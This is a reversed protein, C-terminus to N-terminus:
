RAKIGLVIPDLKHIHRVSIYAPASDYAGDNVLLLIDTRLNRQKDTPMWPITITLISKAENAPEITANGRLVSAYYSAISQGTDAWSYRLDEKLVLTQGERIAAFFAYATDECYAEGGHNAAADSKVEVSDVRMRCVPPIHKLEHAANILGDLFPSEGHANDAAEEPLTYAPVHAAPEKIGGAIRSKFLYMLTPVYLGSRLMRTKLEPPLAASAYAIPKLLAADTGSAGISHLYFPSLFSFADADPVCSRLAPGIFLFNNEYFTRFKRQFAPKEPRTEYYARLFKRSTGEVVSMEGDGYSQVGMTVRAPFIHEGSSGFTRVPSEFKLQPFCSPRLSSHGNDFSRFTDQTLGAAGGERYWVNVRAVWREGAPNKYPSSWQDYALPESKEPAKSAEPWKAIFASDFTDSWLPSGPRADLSAGFPPISLPPVSEHEAGLLALVVFVLALM